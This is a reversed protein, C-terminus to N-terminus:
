FSKRYKYPTSIIITKIVKRLLIQTRKKPCKICLNLFNMFNKFLSKDFKNTDM